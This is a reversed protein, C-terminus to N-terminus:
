GLEDRRREQEWEWARRDREVRDIAEMLEIRQRNYWREVGRRNSPSRRKRRSMLGGFSLGPM